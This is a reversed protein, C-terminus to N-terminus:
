TIARGPAHAPSNGKEQSATTLGSVETQPPSSQRGDSKLMRLFPVARPAHSAHNATGPRQRLLERRQGHQEVRVGSAGSSQQQRKLTPGSPLQVALLVLLGGPRAPTASDCGATGGASAAGAKM